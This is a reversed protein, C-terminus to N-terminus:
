RSFLSRAWEKLAIGAKQRSSLSVKEKFPLRPNKKLRELIQHYVKGMIWAALLPKRPLKKMLRFASQYIAETRAIEHMLLSDTRVSTRGKLIDEEKLSFKDLDNLPLYIRGSMADTKVDRLINTLQLARGLLIAAEEAEEGEVEFIKMCILGVVSAVGYTYQCLEEFSAYRNKHLDQEVGALLEEFYKKPINFRAQAWGIEKLVPHSATSEYAENLEKTWRALKERAEEPSASEDVADDVLRSFAYVAQIARKKDANLFVFSAAFNSGSKETIDRAYDQNAISLDNNQM